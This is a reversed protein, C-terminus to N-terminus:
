MGLRVHSNKLMGDQDLLAEFESLEAANMKMLELALVSPSSQLPHELNLVMPLQHVKSLPGDAPAYFQDQAHTSM